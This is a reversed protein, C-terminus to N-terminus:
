GPFRSRHCNHREGHDSPEGSHLTKEPNLVRKAREGSFPYALEITSRTRSTVVWPDPFVVTVYPVIEVTKETPATPPSSQAAATPLSCLLLVMLRGACAM